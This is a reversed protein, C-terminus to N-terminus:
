TTTNGGHEARMETLIEEVIQICKPELAPSLGYKKIFKKAYTTANTPKDIRTLDRLSQETQGFEVCKRQHRKMNM